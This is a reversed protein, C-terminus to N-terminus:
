TFIVIFLLVHFDIFKSLKTQKLHWRAQGQALLVQGVKSSGKDAEDVVVFLNEPVMVIWNNFVVAKESWFGLNQVCIFPLFISTYKM